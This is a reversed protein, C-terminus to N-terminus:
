SQAVAHQGSGDSSSLPVRQVSRALRQARRYVIEAQFGVMIAIMVMIEGSGAGDQIGKFYALVGMAFKAAVLGLFLLITLVNGKRVIRGDTEMWLDTRYGRLVGIGASLVLGALLLGYGASGHPLAFGGVIGYIIALKFRNHTAVVSVVTQQYIAYGTMAVIVAIEIPSM